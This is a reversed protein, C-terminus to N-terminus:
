RDTSRLELLAGVSSYTSVAYPVLYTLAVQVANALTFSGALLNPAHNIAALITGILLAVKLARSRVTPEFALALFDRM